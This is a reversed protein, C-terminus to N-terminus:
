AELKPTPEIKPEASPRPEKKQLEAVYVAVEEISVEGDMNTDYKALLEDFVKGCEEYSLGGGEVSKLIDHLEQVSVVHDKDTDFSKVLAEVELGAGTKWKNSGKKPVYTAPVEFEIPKHEAASAAIKSAVAVLGPQRWEVGKLAFAIEKYLNTKGGTLHAPTWDDGFMLAFECEYRAPGVVSPFEHICNMHVGARMAAHMHEVFKATDDGSTFTRADLLVLMHDCQAVEAVDTTYTLPVSAAKGKTAFVPADRLEEAFEKAGANFESCFLHFERGKLPPPLSIKGTAAEGQLYLEPAEVSMPAITFNGKAQAKLMENGRLIGGQAILRITVDQFHPLRNWEVPPNAFLATRVEAEDPAHDFAAPLLEGDDGWEKHKKRLKFKDLIKNSIFGEIAAQNFGGEQTHDPELMALIPRRQVVARYLEKLSNKKKFYENTCFVLICESKDVEATGSGSKLDDVDLFTRCSPLCELFRAKVIRMRDQAAPWAHSLFLHFAQPDGGGAPELELWKGTASYKIRRLKANNKIEVIIQVAVLCVAFILSGVVSLILIFSLLLASVIYDDKQEGTMALQIGQGTTLADFKYLISCFFVMLLSFSAAAAAFDDSQNKYPAAQLQVMLYTACVITALTIQLISGPQFTVFLGVLLFKRLMEMLEWYFSTPDYEKYLFAIARTLPTEKGALISSSARFLLIGSGAMIGIPYLAVAIWAILTVGTHEPTSCEISVDARLWGRGNSFWYCPFGDFAATTVLPYLIFLIKLAAPLTQEFLTAERKGDMDGLEFRAAHSDDDDSAVKTAVAVVPAAHKKQHKKYTIMGLVVLVVVVLCIAPTFLWFLLRLRYGGLGMCELSTTSFGQVGFSVFGSFQDLFDTVSEPLSVEYLKPVKTAIQYFGLMIKIKNPLALTESISKLRRATPAPMKRRVVTVIIALAALVGLFAFIMGIMSGTSGSCPACTAKDADSAKKYWTDSGESCLECYTSYAEIGPACPNGIGGQCGTTNKTGDPCLRVDTSMNNLRYFGTMLPLLELTSGIVCNTGLPCAHCTANYLYYGQECAPEISTETPSASGPPCVYGADCAGTCQLDGNGLTNGYRGIGCQMQMSSGEAAYYGSTAQECSTAGATASYTGISCTTCSRSGNVNSFSGPQCQICAQGEGGQGDATFIAYGAPCLTCEAQGVPRESGLPCAQCETALSSREYHAQCEVAIDSGQLRRSSTPPEACAGNPLSISDACKVWFFMAMRGDNATRVVDLDGDGDFDAFGVHAPEGSYKVFPDNHEFFRGQGRNLFMVSECDYFIDNSALQAWVDNDGDGDIDLVYVLMVTDGKGVPTGSSGASYTLADGGATNAELVGHTFAPGKLVKLDFTVLDLIGDGDVDGYQGPANDYSTDLTGDNDKDVPPTKFGTSVDYAITFANPYNNTIVASNFSPLPGGPDPSPLSQPFRMDMDGDGDVDYFFINFSPGEYAGISPSIERRGILSTAPATM